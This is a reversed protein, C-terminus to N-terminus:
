DVYFRTGDEKCELINIPGFFGEGWGDCFQTAMWDWIEYKLGGRFSKGPKTKIEIAVICEPENKKYRRAKCSQIRDKAVQENMLKCMFDAQDNWNKIFENAILDAHPLNIKYEKVFENNKDVQIEHCNYLSLIKSM